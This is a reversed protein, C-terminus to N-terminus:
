CWRAPRHDLRRLGYKAALALANRYERAQLPRDLPPYDSALYAPHYQDMLNIYTDTSVESAIFKLM